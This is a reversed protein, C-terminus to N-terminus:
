WDWDRAWSRRQWRSLRLSFPFPWRSCFVLDIGTLVALTVFWATSPEIGGALLLLAIIFVTLRIM